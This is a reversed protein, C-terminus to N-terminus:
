AGAVRRQRTEAIAGTLDAHAVGRIFIRYWIEANVLLWLRNGHDARGARHAALLRDLAAKQLIGDSVLSADELFLRFLLSFEDRLMYPLAVSFGQKPLQLLAPPLHREALMRQVRRLSRGRVKLRMPLRAAFEALKHDLFPARAELGHAMTMRDLIMVPHDPMRLQSDVHLMRDIPHEARAGEYAAVIPATPDAGTLTERFEPTFLDDGESGLFYFYGLSAAYREGGELFSLRHLWSLQNSRSKYWGGTSTQRLLAGTVHERIARPLLAYVGAFRNGYYRDYGGFLEDGGDGGLVVKVHKSAMEAILYVCVALPDSPEDMQAVLMPLLRLLSPEISQERHITGYREAVARAYPAEDFEQYALSGSFTQLPEKVVFKALLAVVLTSDLGGSLFAGIPVDSVIHARLSEVIEQELRDALVGDTGSLKPEYELDWYRSIRLGHELDFVLTHAPPLKRIRRFMSHPPMVIRLTMYQQLAAPDLEALAPDLALLAKIESAFSFQGPGEVYYFPKQGLHDRAAFLRQRPEDWIAFAFMGRLRGLCADGWEEYAHVLVETDSRTTFRHGRGILDERLERYNYIEGNLIVWIEGTENSVPQHGQALDIISLRTHGLVAAGSRHIGRDDPGRHRLAAVM